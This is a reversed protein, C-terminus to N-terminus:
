TKKVVKGAKKTQRASARLVADNAISSIYHTLHCKVADQFITPNEMAKVAYEEVKAAIEDAHNQIWKDISEKVLPKLAGDFSDLREKAVKQVQKPLEANIAAETATTVEAIMKPRALIEEIKGEIAKAVPTLKESSFSFPSMMM